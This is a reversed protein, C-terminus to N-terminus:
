HNYVSLSLSLTRKHKLLLLMIIVPQRCEELVSGIDNFFNELLNSVMSISLIPSLVV